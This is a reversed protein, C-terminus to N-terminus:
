EPDNLTRALVVLCSFSPFLMWMPFPFALIIKRCISHADIHLIRFIGSLIIQISQALILFILSM